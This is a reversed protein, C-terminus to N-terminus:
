LPCESTCVLKMSGGLLSLDAIAQSGHSSTSSSFCFVRPVLTFVSFRRCGVGAQLLPLRFRLSFRLLMQFSLAIVHVRRWRSICRQKRGNVTKVAGDRAPGWHSQPLRRAGRKQRHRLYVRQKVDVSALHSILSPNNHRTSERVQTQVDVPPSVPHRATRTSRGWM